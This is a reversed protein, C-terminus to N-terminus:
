ETQPSITVKNKGSNKSALLADDAFKFLADYGCPRTTEAVGVSVTVPRGDPLRVSDQVAARVNEAIERTKADADGLVIVFEEGGVRGLLDTSRQIRSRMAEAVARIVADGVPHGFVDNIRKFDDIDAILVSVREVGADGTREHKLRALLAEAGTKLAERNLVGTLLDVKVKERLARLEGREDLRRQLIARKKEQDGPSAPEHKSELAMSVTRRGARAEM